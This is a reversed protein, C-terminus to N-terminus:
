PILDVVALADYLDIDGDQDIDGALKEIDTAPDGTGLIIEVIRDVDDNDVGGDPVIDGTLVYHFLGSVLTPVVANNNEDSLAVWSFNLSSTTGYTVAPDVGYTIQAIPGTGAPISAFSTMNVMLIQVYTGSEDWTVDFTSARNVGAVNTATLENPTDTMRFLLGRIPIQNELSVNVNVTESQQGSTSQISLIVQSTTINFVADSVDSPTGDIDQVRILGQLTSAAPLTWSYSGDNTTSAIVENWNGGNDSSYFIAVNAITGTATWTIDHVSSAAWSEGGNPSTVTIEQLVATIEFTGPSIGWPFGDAADSIRVLCNSSPTNPITWPYTGTNATSAVVSLWNSGNDISYEIKVDASFDSINWEIDHVSGVVWSEGGAPSTVFIQQARLTYDDVNNNLNGYLALGAYYFFSNGYLKGPDTVTGDEVNNIWVTFHHGTGDTSAAVKIVDGPASNPQTSAIEVLVTGDDVSGNIIPNLRIFGNRRMIFYGNATTPDNTTLYMAFGGSNVGLPTGNPDWRMSVEYPSVLGKYIALYEFSPTTATNALTNSVIQYEPDAAWETGLSARNFDDVITVAGLPLVSAGFLIILMLSFISKIRM